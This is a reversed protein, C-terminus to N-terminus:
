SSAEPPITPALMDISREARGTHRHSAEPPWPWIVGVREYLRHEGHMARVDFAPVDRWGRRIGIERISSRKVVVEDDGVVVLGPIAGLIADILPELTKRGGYRAGAYHEEAADLMRDRLSM